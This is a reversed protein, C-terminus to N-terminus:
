RAAIPCTAPSASFSSKLCVTLGRGARCRATTAAVSTATATTTQPIIGCAPQFVSFRQPWGTASIGLCVSTPSVPNVLSITTALPSGNSTFPATSYRENQLGEVAQCRNLSLLGTRASMAPVFTLKVTEPWTSSPSRVTFTPSALCSTVTRGTCRGAIRSNCARMSSGAYRRCGSRLSVTCAAKRGTSRPLVTDNWPRTERSRLWASTAM